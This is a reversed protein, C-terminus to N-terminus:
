FDTYSATLQVEGRYTEESQDSAATVEGGLWVRTESSGLNFSYENSPNFNGNDSDADQIRGYSDGDISFTLTADTSQGDLAENDVAAGGFEITVNQGESGSITFEGLAAESDGQGANSGDFSGDDGDIVLSATQGQFLIGFQLDTVETVDIATLVEAEANIQDSDTDQGFAQSAFLVLSTLLTISLLKKMIQLNINQPQTWNKLKV